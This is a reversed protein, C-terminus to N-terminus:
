FHDVQSGTAYFMRGGRLLSPRKAGNAVVLLDLLAPAHGPPLQLSATFSVTKFLKITKYYLGSVFSLSLAIQGL